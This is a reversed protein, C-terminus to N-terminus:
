YVFFGKKKLQWMMWAGFASLGIGVLSILSNMLQTTLDQEAMFAELKEAADPNFQRMQEIQEAQKEPTNSVLGSLTTILMLGCAIWTLICTVTLLQPKKPSPLDNTFNNESITNEM